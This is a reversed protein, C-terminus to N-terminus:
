SLNQRSRVFLPYWGKLAGSEGKLCKQQQHNGFRFVIDNPVNQNVPNLTSIPADCRKWSKFSISELLLAVARLLSSVNIRCVFAWCYIMDVAAALM